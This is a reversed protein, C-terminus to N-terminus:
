WNQAKCSKSCFRAWGRKRDAKKAVFGGGCNKCQCFQQSEPLNDYTGNKIDEEYQKRGETHIKHRERCFKRRGSKSHPNHEISEYREPTMRLTSVLEQASFADKDGDCEEFYRDVEDDAGRADDVDQYYGDNNKESSM